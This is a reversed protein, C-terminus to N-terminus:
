KIKRRIMVIRVEKAKRSIEQDTEGAKCGNVGYRHTIPEQDTGTENRAVKGHRV